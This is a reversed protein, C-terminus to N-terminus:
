KFNVLNMLKARSLAAAGCAIRGLEFNKSRRRREFRGFWEFILYFDICAQVTRM